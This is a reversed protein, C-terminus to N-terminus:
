FYHYFHRAIAAVVLIVAILDTIIRTILIYSSSENRDDRRYIRTSRTGTQPKQM